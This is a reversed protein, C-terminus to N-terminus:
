LFNRVVGFGLAVVLLGSVAWPNALPNPWWRGTWWGRAARGAQWGAVPLFFLVLPNLRWAAAIDGHLVAHLARTAGCGSCQWGTTQYLWCRPFFFQGGPEFRWVLWLLAAGGALLLWGWWPVRRSPPSGALVPPASQIDAPM